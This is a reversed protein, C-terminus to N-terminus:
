SINWEPIRIGFIKDIKNNSLVSYKPRSVLSNFDTSKIKKIKKNYKIGSLLYIEKTFEYWNTKGKSTLNYIGWLSPDVSFKERLNIFIMIHTIGQAIHRSWTPTGIQDYVVNIPKNEKMYSLMKLVFNEKYLGYVWSTRIIIHKSCYKIINEEGM